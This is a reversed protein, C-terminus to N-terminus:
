ADEDSPADVRGSIRRDRHAHPESTEHARDAETSFNDAVKSCEERFHDM